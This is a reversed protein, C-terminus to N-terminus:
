KPLKGSPRWSHFFNTKKTTKYAYFKELEDELKIKDFDGEYHSCVNKLSPEFKERDSTSFNLLIYELDAVIKLNESPYREVVAKTAACMLSSYINKFHRFSLDSVSMEKQEKEIGKTRRGYGRPLSAEAEQLGIKTAFDKVSDYFAKFNEESAADASLVDVVREILQRCEGVNINPSQIKQHVPNVTLLVRQFLRLM